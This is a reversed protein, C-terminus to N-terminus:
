PASLGLRLCVNVAAATLCLFSFYLWPLTAVIAPLERLEEREANRLWLLSGYLFASMLLASVLWVAKDILAHSLWFAHTGPYRAFGNTEEYEASMGMSSLIDLIQALLCLFASFFVRKM